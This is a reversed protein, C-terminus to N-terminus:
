SWDLVAITGCHKRAAQMARWAAGESEFLASRGLVRDQTAKLVFFPNGSVARKLEFGRENAGHLRAAEIVELASSKKSFPGSTFLVEHQEGKLSVIFMGNTARKLEYPM